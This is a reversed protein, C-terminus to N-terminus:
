KHLYGRYKHGKLLSIIDRLPFMGKNSSTLVLARSIEQEILETEKNLRESNIILEDVSEWGTPTRTTM